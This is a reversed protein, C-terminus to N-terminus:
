RDAGPTGSLKVSVIQGPKLARAPEGDPTAEILYVLTQRNELSYIVPPTFEPGDAIYSVTATIGKACADCEVDLHSGVHLGAVQGEPVYLRLKTGGDPLISLVPAQPGAVEGADRIVDVIMGPQGASLTRKRLSWEAKDLAAKMQEVSARAVAIEDKRAPLKSFALNARLEEVKAKAVDYSTRASDFRSKSITERDLLTQQRDLDRKAEEASFEAAALSAELTAIKEPRAGQTLDALKSNAQALAARAEAVAIEADRQEMRVIPQSATVRDGRRVAVDEIQATAIPALLIYNGEVYGTALPEPPLCANFLLGILPLSCVLSM